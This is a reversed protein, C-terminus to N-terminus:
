LSSTSRTSSSIIATRSYLDEASQAAERGISRRLRRRTADDGAAVLGEAASWAQARTNEFWECTAKEDLRGLMHDAIGLVKAIEALRNQITDVVGNRIIDNVADYDRLNTSREPDLAVAFLALPLDNRLHANIELVLDRVLSGRADAAADFAIQWSKPVVEIRGLEYRGLAQRYLNAFAVLLRSIWAPNGFSGDALKSQVGLTIEQYAIVFVLRRDQAAAFATELRRLMVLVEPVAGLTPEVCRAVPSRAPSV